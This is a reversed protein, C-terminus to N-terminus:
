NVNCVWSVNLDWKRKRSDKCYSTDPKGLISLVDISSSDFTFSELDGVQINNGKLKLQM